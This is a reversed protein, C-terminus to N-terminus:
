LYLMGLILCIVILKRFMHSHTLVNMKVSIEFMVMHFVTNLTNIYKFTLMMMCKLCWSNQKKNQKNQPLIEKILILFFHIIFLCGILIPYIQVEESIKSCRVAYMIM